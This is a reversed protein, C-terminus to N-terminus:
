SEYSTLKINSTFNKFPWSKFEPVRAISILTYVVLDDVNPLYWSLEFGREREIDSESV